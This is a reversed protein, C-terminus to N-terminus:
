VQDVSITWLPTLSIRFAPTSASSSQHDLTITEVATMMNTSAGVFARGLLDCRLVANAPGTITIGDDLNFTDLVNTAALDTSIRFRRNTGDWSVFLATNNDRAMSPLSGIFSKLQRTESEVVYRRHMEPLNVTAVLAAMALLAM